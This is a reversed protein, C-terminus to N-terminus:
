ASNRRQSLGSRGNRVTREPPSTRSGLGLLIGAALALLTGLLLGGVIDALLHRGLLLRTMLEVLVLCGGLTPLWAAYEAIGSARSRIMGAVLFLSLLRAVSGSPISGSGDIVTGASVDALTLPGFAHAYGFQLLLEVLVLVPLLLPWYGTGPVRLLWVALVGALTLSPVSDGMTTVVRCVQVLVEGRGGSLVKVARGDLDAIAEVRYVLALVALLLASAVVGLMATRRATRGAAPGVTEVLRIAGTVGVVAALITVTWALSLTV